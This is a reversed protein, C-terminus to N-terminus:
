VVKSKHKIFKEIKERDHPSLDVFSLGVGVGEHIYLVRATVKIAQEDTDRLKFRVTMVSDVPFEHVTELYLGGPSLDSCRHMGVGVVEVEKIFRVRKHERPSKFESDAM